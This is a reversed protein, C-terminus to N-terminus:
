TTSATLKFAWHDVPNLLRTHHKGSHEPELAFKGVLNGSGTLRENLQNLVNEVEDVDKRIL